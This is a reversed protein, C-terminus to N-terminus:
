RRCYMEVTDFFFATKAKGSMQCHAGIRKATDTRVHFALKEVKRGSSTQHVSLTMASPGSVGRLCRPPAKKYVGVLDNRSQNM